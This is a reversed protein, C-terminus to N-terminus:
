LQEHYKEPPYVSMVGAETRTTGAAESTPRVARRANALPIALRAFKTCVQKNQSQAAQNSHPKAGYGVMLPARVLEHLGRQFGMESVRSEPNNTIGTCKTSKQNQSMQTKQSFHENITGINNYM